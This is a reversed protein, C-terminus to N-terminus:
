SNTLLRQVDFLHHLNDHMMYQSLSLVTFAAGDGRKGTKDWLPPAMSDFVEGLRNSAGTLLAAAQEPSNAAYGPAAADPDFSAFTPNDESIMMFIRQQMVDMVDAVHSAYETASWTTPASRKTLVRPDAGPGTLIDVWTEISDHLQTSLHTSPINRVDAGCESCPERLVITWDRPDSMSGTDCIQDTREMLNEPTILASM